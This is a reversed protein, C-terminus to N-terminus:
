ASAAGDPEALSHEILVRVQASISRQQQRALESIRERLAVPMSVSLVVIESNDPREKNGRAMIRDM